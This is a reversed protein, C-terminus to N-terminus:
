RMATGATSVPVVFGRTMLVILGRPIGTARLYARVQREYGAITQALPAVDSKWDIVTSFSGDPEVALADAIGATIEEDAGSQISSYVSFEAVLRPRLAAIEPLDLTRRITAALENPDYADIADGCTALLVGARQVLSALDDQTEGTLVEEMLKHLVLGRGRGGQPLAHRERDEQEDLPLPLEEASTGDDEGRSPTLRVIRAARAVMMAAETEYAARDQTNVATDLPPLASPPLGSADFAPMGQLGLDVVSAWANARLSCRPRPLLLLDRARTTAVYWLRQRELDIQTKEAAVAVDCGPPAVGLLSAHLIGTARDLVPPQVARTGTATNIPIVVSWELGKASHMTVLSVAHQEADPRAEGSSSEDEWSTRMAQAFSHLGRVDWARSLDLFADINALAREASRGGRQRLVPRVRMEEVASSLLVFPTTSRARRALGQLIDLTERLSPDRVDAIQLWLRLRPPRGDQHPMAELADLLAEETFGVLPGRLLAGLALTDRSDALVGALAILDQIEQRRFFGKGAQTAM